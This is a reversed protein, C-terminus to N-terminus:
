GRRLVGSSRRGTLGYAPNFTPFPAMGYGGSLVNAELQDNEVRMLEMFARNEQEATYVSLSDASLIREQFVKAARITVWRNYVEPVEDWSLLLTVDAQLSPIDLLKYTRNLRDYVRQGRLQFRHAWQYADPAFRVVNAPVVIEMTAADREFQYAQETNWSWGRTQGERHFELITREAVASETNQSDELTVIPAEGLNALLVNVAEVLTTRGPTVSQNATGM